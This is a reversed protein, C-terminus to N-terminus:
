TDADCILKWIGVPVASPGAVIATVPAGPAIAIPVTITFFTAGPKNVASPLPRPTAAANAIRTPTLPREEAVGTNWHEFVPHEETGTLRPTSVGVNKLRNPVPMRLRDEKLATLTVM